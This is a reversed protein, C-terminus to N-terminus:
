KMCEIAIAHSFQHDREPRLFMEDECKGQEFRKIEVFGHDALAKYLAHYDWMWRHASGSFADVLRQKVTSRSVELGLGTDKIFQYAAAGAYISAQAQQYKSIYYSLDPVLIRFRGGTKLYTYSNRLATLCDSFSLHELVHSCFLGDVSDPSLPLGKVVDGYRIEDDFVCNLKSRMLRGVIPIKQIVLTPSADFNVWGKIAENGAGYQVYVKQDTM